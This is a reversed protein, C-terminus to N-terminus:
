LMKLGLLFKDYKGVVNMKMVLYRATDIHGLM